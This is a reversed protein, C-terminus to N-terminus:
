PRSADPRTPVGRQERLAALERPQDWALVQERQCDASSFGGPAAKTFSLPYILKIGEATHILPTTRTRPNKTNPHSQIPTNQPEAHHFNKPTHSCSM